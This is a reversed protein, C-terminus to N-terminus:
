KQLLHIAFGAIEQKMYIVILRGTSDYKCSETDFEIGKEKLSSVAKEIDSTSVAIHGHQGRGMGHKMLEILPGAYTSDKGDSIELNFLKTFIEAIEVTEASDKLNVGFHDIGSFLSDDRM